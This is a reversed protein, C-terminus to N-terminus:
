ERRYLYSQYYLGRGIHIYMLIFIMSAGNAHMYRILWGNKVDQMIHIVSDFALNADPVYHMALVIGTVIQIAFYLGVL